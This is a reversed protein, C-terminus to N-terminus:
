HYIKLINSNSINNESSHRPRPYPTCPFGLILSGRVSSTGRDVVLDSPIHIKRCTLHLGGVMSRTAWAMGAGGPWCPAEESVQHSAHPAYWQPSRACKPRCIRRARVFFNLSHHSPRPVLVAGLAEEGRYAVIV